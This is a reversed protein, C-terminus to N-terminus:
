SCKTCVSLVGCCGDGPLFDFVLWVGTLGIVGNLVFWPEGVEGWLIWIEEVGM